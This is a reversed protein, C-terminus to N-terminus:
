VGLVFQGLLTLALPTTKSDPAFRVLLAVFEKASLLPLIRDGLLEPLTPTGVTLRLAGMILIAALSGPLGAVLAIARTRLISLAKRLRPRARVQEREEPAETLERQLIETDM